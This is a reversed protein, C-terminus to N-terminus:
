AGGRLLRDPDLMAARWAPVVSVAVFPVVVASVIALVQALDVAPALALDAHLVSWGFLADAIGPAGLWFAHVYGLVVGAVSGVLAVLGSEWMRATLVDHTSWGTAKLVGIERREAEGLGTLRDWALLLLALLAPVLMAGVLGARADFTLEYTRELLQRDIVRAGSIAQAIEATVVAAEEDRALDIALDTAMADPVGLLSRARTDTAIVLDSGLAATRADLVGSITLVVPTAGETATLAIQDGARAGLLRAIGSGVVIEDDREPWRGDVIDADDRAGMGIVVVNGEIPAVFLYGWVRPRVSRVGPLDLAEITQAESEAILAPRGAILRQVTLDPLGEALARYEARMAEALFATSGFLAVVAALGVVIAANRGARRRLAGLAHDLLALQRKM